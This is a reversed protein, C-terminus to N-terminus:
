IVMDSLQGIGASGRLQSLSTIGGEEHATGGPRKLHSVM